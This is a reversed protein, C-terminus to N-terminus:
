AAPRRIALRFNVGNRYCLHKVTENVVRCNLPLKASLPSFLLSFVDSSLTVQLSHPLASLSGDSPLELSGHGVQPERLRRKSFFMVALSSSVRLGIV